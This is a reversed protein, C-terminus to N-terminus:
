EKESKKAYIIVCPQELILQKFKYFVQEFNDSRSNLFFPVLPDGLGYSTMEWLEYM